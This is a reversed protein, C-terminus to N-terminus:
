SASLRALPSAVYRYAGDLFIKEWTNGSLGAVSYTAGKVTGGWARAQSFPGLNADDSARHILGDDQSSAFLAGLTTGSGATARINIGAGKVVVTVNQALRPWPDKYATGQKLYFHLHCATSHGSTGLHGLLQGKTVAQGVSVVEDALHWYGTTWGNGHDLIVRIAGDYSSKGATLVKGAAAAIVDAGCQRNGLDLGRHFHAYYGAPIGEGGPWSVAPEGTFSTPGFDQTVRFSGTIATSGPPRITTQRVPNGLIM